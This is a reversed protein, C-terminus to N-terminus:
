KPSTPYLEDVKLAAFIQPGVAPTHAPRDEQRVLYVHLHNSIILLTVQCHALDGRMRGELNATEEYVQNTQTDRWKFYLSTGAPFSGSEGRRMYVRKAEVYARPMEVLIEKGHRYQYDLAQAHQGDNTLDFTFGYWYREAASASQALFLSLALVFKAILM